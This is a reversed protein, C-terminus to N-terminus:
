FFDDDDYGNIFNRVTEKAMDPTAYPNWGSYEYMKEDRGFRRYLFDADEIVHRRLILRDTKLQITGTM